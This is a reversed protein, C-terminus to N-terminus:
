QIPACTYTNQHTDGNSNIMKAVVTQMVTKAIISYPTQTNIIADSTRLSIRM